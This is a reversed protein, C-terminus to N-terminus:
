FQFHVSMVEICWEVSQLRETCAIAAANRLRSLQSRLQSWLQPRRGACGRAQLGWPALWHHVGNASRLPASRRPPWHRPRIVTILQGYVIFVRRASLLSREWMRVITRSWKLNFPTFHGFLKLSTNSRFNLGPSDSWASGLCCRCIRIFIFWQNSEAIRKARNCVGSINQVSSQEYSLLLNETFSM